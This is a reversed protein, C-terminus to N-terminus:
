YAKCFRKVFLSIIAPTNAPVRETSACTFDYFVMIELIVGQEPAWNDVRCTISHVVPSISSFGGPFCKWDCFVLIQHPIHIM